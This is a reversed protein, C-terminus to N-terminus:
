RFRNRLEVGTRYSHRQNRLGVTMEVVMSSVHQLEVNLVRDNNGFGVVGASSSRDIEQWFIQGDNAACGAPVPSFGACGVDLRPESGFYSLRFAVINEALAVPTPDGPTSVLLRQGAAEYQYTITEDPGYAPVYTGTPMAYTGDADFDAQFTIATAGDPASVSLIQDVERLERTLREFALRATQNLELWGRGDRAARDGGFLFGYFTGLLLSLILLTVSLEVMTYGEDRRLRRGVRVVRM